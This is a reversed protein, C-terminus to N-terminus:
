ESNSQWSAYNRGCTNIKWQHFVLPHHTINDDIPVDYSLESASTSDGYNKETGSAIYSGNISFLSRENVDVYTHAIGDFLDHTTTIHPLMIECSHNKEWRNYVTQEASWRTFCTEKGVNLWVLCSLQKRIPMKRWTHAINFYRWLENSTRNHFIKYRGM